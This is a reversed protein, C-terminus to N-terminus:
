IGGREPQSQRGEVLLNIRGGRERLSTSLIWTDILQFGIGPKRKGNKKPMLRKRHNTESHLNSILQVEKLFIYM